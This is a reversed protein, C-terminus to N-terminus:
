VLATQTTVPSPAPHQLETGPLVLVTKPVGLCGSEQPGGQQFSKGTPYLLRPMLSVVCRRRTSLNLVLPATVGRGRHVKMALIPIAIGRNVHM